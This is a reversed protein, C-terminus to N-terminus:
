SGDMMGTDRLGRIARRAGWAAAVAMPLMFGSFALKLTTDTPWAWVLLLLLVAGVAGVQLGRRLTAGAGARRRVLGRIGRIVLVLTSAALGLPVIVPWPPGFDEAKLDLLAVIAFFVGNVLVGSLALSGVRLAKLAAM